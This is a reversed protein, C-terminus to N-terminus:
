ASDQFSVKASQALHALLTYIRHSRSGQLLYAHVTASLINDRHPCMCFIMLSHEVCDFNNASDLQKQNLDWSLSSIEEFGEGRGGM